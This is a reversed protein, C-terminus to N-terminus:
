TINDKHNNPDPNNDNFLDGIIILGNDGGQLDMGTTVGVAALAPRRRSYLATGPRTNTAM